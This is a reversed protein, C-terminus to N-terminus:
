RHEEGNVQHIEEVALDESRNAFLNTPLSVKAVRRKARQSGRERQQIRHNTDRESPEGITAGPLV